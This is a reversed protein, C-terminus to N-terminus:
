PHNTDPICHSARAQTQTHHALPSIPSGEPQRQTDHDRVAWIADDSDRYTFSLLVSRDERAEEHLERLINRFSGHACHVLVPLYHQISM